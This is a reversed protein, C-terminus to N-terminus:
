GTSQFVSKTGKNSLGASARSVNHGQGGGRRQAEPAPPQQWPFGTQQDPAVGASEQGSSVEKTKATGESM